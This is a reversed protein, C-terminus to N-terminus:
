DLGRGVPRKDGQPAIHTVTKFHDLARTKFHLSCIDSDLPRAREKFCLGHIDEILIWKEVSNALYTSLM